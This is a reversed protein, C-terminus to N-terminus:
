PSYARSSSPSPKWSTCTLVISPTQDNNRLQSRGWRPMEWSLRGSYRAKKSNVCLRRRRPLARKSDKTAASRLGDVWFRFHAKCKVGLMSWDTSMVSARPSVSVICNLSGLRAGIRDGSASVPRFQIICARQFSYGVRVSWSFPSGEANAPLIVDGQFSSLASRLVM